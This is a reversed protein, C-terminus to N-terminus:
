EIVKGKGTVYIKVKVFDDINIKQWQEYSLNIDYTKGKEDAGVIYYTEYVSGKREKEELIVEGWYPQKDKGETKVSREYQWKDIEYYYKTKYIPISKYVPEQYKEEEYYTEYVPENQTIEEFYGNGLDRYGVIVEEYGVIRQKEVQRTKNEYYDVVQEYEYIEEKQYLLRAETPLSWNSEKVTQYSEIDITREWGIQQVTVQREKPMVLLTIGTIVLIAITVAIIPIWNKQTFAKIKTIPTTNEPTTLQLNSSNNQQSDEQSNPQCDKNNQKEINEFYNLNDETRAAGCSLCSQVDDPNLQYGCYECLWDPQRSIMRAEQEPVYEIVNPLYFRTNKDRVKGCNPCERKDGGIGKTKCSECDWLGKVLRGM